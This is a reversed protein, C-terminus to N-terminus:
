LGSAKERVISTLALTIPLLSFWLYGDIAAAGILFCFATLLYYKIKAPDLAYDLIEAGSMGKFRRQRKIKPREPLACRTKLYKHVRRKDPFIFRTDTLATLRIVSRTRRRTLMYCTTLGEKKAFRHAAAIDEKSLDLFKYQCAVASLVGNIEAVIYPPKCDKVKDPPLTSRFRETQDKLGELALLECMEPASVEKSRKLGSIKYVSLLIPVSVGAVALAIDLPLFKAAVIFVAAAFLVSSFIKDTVSAM